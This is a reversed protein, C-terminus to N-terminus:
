LVARGRFVGANGATPMPSTQEKPRSASPLTSPVPSSLISGVLSGRGRCAVPRSEKRKPRNLSIHLFRSPVVEIIETVSVVSEGVIKERAQEVGIRRDQHAAWGGQGKQDCLLEMGREVVNTNTDPRAKHFLDLYPFVTGM